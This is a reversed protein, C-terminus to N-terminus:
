SPRDAVYVQFPFRWYPEFLATCKGLTYYMHKNKMAAVHEELQRSKWLAAQAVGEINDHVWANGSEQASRVASVEDPADIVLDGSGLCLADPPPSVVYSLM